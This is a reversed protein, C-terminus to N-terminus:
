MNCRSAALMALYSMAALALVGGITALIGLMVRGGVTDLWWNVKEIECERAIETVPFSVFSGTTFRLNPRGDQGTNTSHLIESVTVFAKDESIANLDETRNSRLFYVM